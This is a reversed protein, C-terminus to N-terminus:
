DLPFAFKTKLFLQTETNEFYIRKDDYLSKYHVSCLQEFENCKGGPYMTLSHKGVAM